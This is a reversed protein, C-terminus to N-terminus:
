VKPTDKLTPQISFLQGVMGKDGKKLLKEM